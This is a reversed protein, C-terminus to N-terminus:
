ENKFKKQKKYVKKKNKNYCFLNTTCKKWLAKKM